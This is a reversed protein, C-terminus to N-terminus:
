KEPLPRIVYYIFSGITVLILWGGARWFLNGQQAFCFSMGLMAGYMLALGLVFLTFKMLYDFLHATMWLEIKKARTLKNNLM